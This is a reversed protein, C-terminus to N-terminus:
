LVVVLAREPNNAKLHKDGVGGREGGMALWGARGLTRGLSRAITSESERQGNGGDV